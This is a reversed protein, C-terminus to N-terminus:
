TESVVGILCSTNKAMACATCDTNMQARGAETSMKASAMNMLSTGSRPRAGFGPLGGALLGFQDGSAVDPEPAADRLMLGHVDLRQPRLCRPAGPANVQVVGARRQQRLRRQVHHAGLQLALRLNAPVLGGGLRPRM